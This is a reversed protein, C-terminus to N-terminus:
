DVPNHDLYWQHLRDSYQWFLLDTRRVGFQDLLYAYDKESRLEQVQEAFDQLRKRDVRLLASPYAGVLGYSILMGDEQPLRRDQEGFIESINTYANHHLLTYYHRQGSNKDSVEIFLIQPLLSAA